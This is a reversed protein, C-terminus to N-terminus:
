QAPQIVVENGEDDQLTGYGRSDLRGRLVKGECNTFLQEGDDKQQSFFKDARCTQTASEFQQRNIKRYQGAKHKPKTDDAYLSASSFTVLALIITSPAIALRWM